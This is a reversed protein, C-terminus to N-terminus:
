AAAGSRRRRLVVAGGVLALAAVPLLAAVPVEPVDSAPVVGPLAVDYVGLGAVLDATYVVNTKQGTDVGVGDRVPVWYADWVETAGPLKYFGYSSLHRADRVDIIQLGGQYFGQALFGDQHYDFWHASCFAQAAGPAAATVPLTGGIPNLKDLPYIAGTGTNSGPDMGPLSPVAWTEISGSQSCVAEGGNNAYDEETVVLVNGAMVSPTADTGPMFRDANPRRSNHLIFDNYNHGDDAVPNTPQPVSTGFSNTTALLTPNAPDTVDFASAGGGGTHWGVKRGSRSTETDFDWYHGAAFSSKASPSAVTKLEGFSTQRGLATTGDLASDGLRTLDLVSFVGKGGATYAYECSLTVCQLTHSSTTTNFRVYEVPASATTVDFVVVQKGGARGLVAPPTGPNSPTGTGAGTVQVLDNGVFVFRRLVGNVVKEAYTMSENEFEVQATTGVLRPDRPDTTDFVSLGNARSTYFFNGTHAFTGSILSTQTTAGAGAGVTRIMTVNKSVGPVDAAAAPLAAVAVAALGTAATLILPRRRM